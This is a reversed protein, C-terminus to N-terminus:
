LYRGSVFWYSHNTEHEVTVAVGVRTGGRVVRVRGAAHLPGAAEPTLLLLPLVLGAALLLGCPDPHRGPRCRPELGRRGGCAPGGSDGSRRGLPCGTLPLPLGPVFLRCAVPPLRRRRPVRLLRRRHHRRLRGGLGRLAPTPTDTLGHGRRDRHGEGRRE